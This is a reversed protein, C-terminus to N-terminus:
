QKRYKELIASPVLDARIMEMKKACKNITVESVGSINHISKKSINIGCTNSVFFIIGAAISNPTNEDIVNIQAIKNAIFKCLITLENNMSLRNCYREIFSLPTTKHLVTKDIMSSELDNIISMTNKCGKTASAVDLNFMDAIEKITRPYNNTKCAVYIAAVIIGDRNVGRFTKHEMVKKHIRMAEDTILRPLGNNQATITIKQFEDYLSKEKYPVAQWETYRRLKHTEMSKSGFSLVKCGFSSEELLPNIIMGCRTPDRSSNDDAGFFRWEASSDICDKYLTACNPNPCCYIMDENICLMSKCNICMDPSQQTDIDIMKSKENNPTERDFINWLEAKVVKSKM